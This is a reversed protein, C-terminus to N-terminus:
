RTPSPHLFTALSLALTATRLCDPNLCYPLSNYCLILANKNIYKYNDIVANYLHFMNKITHTTTSCYFDAIGNKVTLIFQGCTTKKKDVALLCIKSLCSLEKKNM